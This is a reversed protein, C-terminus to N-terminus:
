ILINHFYNVLILEREEKIKPVSFHSPFVLYIERGLSRVGMIWGQSLNMLYEELGDNEMKEHIFNIYHRLDINFIEKTLKNSFKVAQNSKNFYFYRIPDEQIQVKTIAPEIQTTMDRCM